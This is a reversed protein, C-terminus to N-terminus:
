RVRRSDAGRRRWVETERIASTREYDGDDLLREIVDAIPFGLERAEELAERDIVCAAPLKRGLDASFADAWARATPEPMGPQVLHGWHYFRTPQPRRALTNLAHARSWVLLRGDGPVIAALEDALTRVESLTFDAGGPELDTAARAAPSGLWVGAPVALQSGWKKGTGAIPLLLLGIALWRGLGARDVRETAAGLAVCALLVIAVFVPGLTYFFGHNQVAFSFLGLGGLLLGAAVAADQRRGPWRGAVALGALALIWHWSRLARGLAPGLTEGVPRVDADLRWLLPDIANELFPGPAAGQAWLASFAIGLGAVSAVGTVGIRMVSERLGRRGRMVQWGAYAALALGFFAFTPKVLAALAIAAGALVAWHLSRAGEGRLHSWHAVLLLEGAILDRQGAFWSGSVVTLAPFLVLWWAAAARGSSRRLLDAGVATFVLVLLYDFARWSWLHVGFVRFALAHLWHSAPWNGDAFDVYPVDGELVRWGTYDLQLQDPSPPIAVYLLGAVPLLLFAM